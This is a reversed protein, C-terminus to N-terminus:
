TKQCDYILNLYRNQFIEFSYENLIKERNFKGMEIRIEPNNILYEMKNAMQIFDKTEVLFGNQHDKILISNDGVNTAVIPLEYSMAEIISNSLGEFLSSSLYIHCKNYYDTLNSPKAVIHVSNILDLESIWKKIDNMLRGYGIIYYRIVFPNKITQRLLAIAKLSTRFDKVKEFRAATLINFIGTQM